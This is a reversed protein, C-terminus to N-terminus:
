YGPPWTVGSIPTKGQRWRRLRRRTYDAVKCQKGLHKLVFISYNGCNWCFAIGRHIAIRHSPHIQGIGFALPVRPVNAPVAPPPIPLGAASQSRPPEGPCRGMALLAKTRKIHAGQRCMTCTLRTGKEEITHGKAELSDKKCRAQLERIAEAMALNLKSQVSTLHSIFALASLGFCVGCIGGVNDALSALDVFLLVIGLLLFVGALVLHIKPNSLLIGKEKALVKELESNM